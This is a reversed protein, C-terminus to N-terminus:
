VGSQDVGRYKSRVNVIRIPYNEIAPVIQHISFCANGVVSARMDRARKERVKVAIKRAVTGASVAPM